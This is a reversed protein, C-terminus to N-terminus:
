AFERQMSVEGTNQEVRVARDDWLEMMDYDKVCTIPLVVGLHKHCWQIIGARALEVDADRAPTGDSWVRATFIRVPIGQDLWRKVRELMASIPEGIDGPSRWTDYHALTRDLDVGIWGKAMEHHEEAVSPPEERSNIQARLLANEAKLSANESMLRNISNHLQNMRGKLDFGSVSQAIM